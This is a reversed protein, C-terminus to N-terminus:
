PCTAGNANTVCTVGAPNFCTRQDSPCYQGTSPNLAGCSGFGAMCNGLTPFDAAPRLSRPLQQGSKPILFAVAPGSGVQPEPTTAFATSATSGVVLIIAILVSRTRTSM